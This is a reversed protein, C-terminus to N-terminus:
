FIEAREERGGSGMGSQESFIRGVLCLEIEVMALRMRETHVGVLEIFAVFGADLTQLINYM